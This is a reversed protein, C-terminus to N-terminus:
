NDFTIYLDDLNINGFVSAKLISMPNDVDLINQDNFFNGNFVYIEPMPLLHKDEIYWYMEELSKEELLKALENLKRLDQRSEIEFPAEYGVITNDLNILEKDVDKVPLKVKRVKIPMIHSCGPDTAVFVNFVM